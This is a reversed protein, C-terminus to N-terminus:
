KKLCVSVQHNNRSNDSNPVHVAYKDLASWIEATFAELHPFAATEEPRQVRCKDIDVYCLTAESAVKINESSAYLGMLFPVPADLFHHLSAPLIPVYVHPWTFPFLLSTVGEAVVMLRQCDTSRLLIQNELLLCTFIQVVIDVGLWLFMLRLPYDLHPLELPSAPCQLVNTIPPLHADSPPLSILISKGPAPTQVEYILNFVYSELSLVESSTNRKPVCKFLNELFIRSAQVFAKQCIISISKSVFLKDKSIDYYTLAPGSTPNHTTLKFHRPLSRSQPGQNQTQIAKVRLGGSLETIYMAQLTQMANCIDRNRVEEYFILSFGYCRKGDERTILFSHFVPAQTVSHKQTRFKLGQPLCLM